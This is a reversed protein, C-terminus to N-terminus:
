AARATPAPRIPRGRAARRAGRSPGPRRARPSPIGARAGRRRPPAALRGRACRPRGEADRRPTAAARAPRGRATPGEAETLAGAQAAARESAWIAAGMAVAHGRLKSGVVRVCGSIEPMAYRRMAAAAEPVIIDELDDVLGGGMVICDPSLFNVLNAMVVGVIRSRSRVLEEIKQDGARIARAIAASKINMLDAGAAKYLNPAWHKAAFSAAQAAIASRSAVDDLLGHRESGSLPGHADVLFHGIEGALGSAGRYLRGDIMLAGGIGTGIFIAIASRAGKAAGLRHEGYLGLQVDNGIVATAGALRSIKEALHYDRIFPINPSSLLVGSETDAIGACGVGIGRVELGRRGAAKLLQRLCCSFRETFRREGQEPLTQMLESHVVRFREDVLDFLVKSGGLDIGIFAPRAAM